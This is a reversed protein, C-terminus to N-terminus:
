EGSTKAVRVCSAHTVTQILWRIKGFGKRIDGLAMRCIPKIPIPHFAHGQKDLQPQLVLCQMAFFQQYKPPFFYINRKNGM